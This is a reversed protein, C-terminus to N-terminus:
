NKPYLLIDRNNFRFYWSNYYNAINTNIPVFSNYFKKSQEQEPENNYYFNKKIIKFHRFVFLNLYEPMKFTKPKTNKVIFAM